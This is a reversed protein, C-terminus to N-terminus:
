IVLELKWIIKVRSPIKSDLRAEILSKDDATYSMRFNYKGQGFFIGPM